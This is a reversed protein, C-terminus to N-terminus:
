QHPNTHQTDTIVGLDLRTLEIVSYACVGGFNTFDAPFPRCLWVCLCGLGLISGLNMDIQTPPARLLGLGARSYARARKEPKCRLYAIHGINHRLPSYM